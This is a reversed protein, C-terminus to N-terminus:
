SNFWSKFRLFQILSDSRADCSTVDICGCPIMSGDRPIKTAAWGRLPRALWGSQAAWRRPVTAHKVTSAPIANGAM